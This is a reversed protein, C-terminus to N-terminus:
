DECGLTKEVVVDSSNLSVHCHWIRWGIDPLSVSFDLSDKGRDRDFSSGRNWVAAGVEGVRVDDCFQHLRRERYTPLVVCSLGGGLVVVL